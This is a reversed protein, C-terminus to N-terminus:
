RPKKFRFVFRDTKGRVAPDFVNKSHDDSPMRLVDSTGDLVFGGRLFDAKVTDPDIRHLKDVVARTDGAPGIHDIVAVIGGPKTARFLGAIVRDPDTRPIKFQESEWYFDHYNLHIMMFDYTNAKGLETAFDTTFTVNPERAGIADAAVKTKGQMFPAPVYAVVKGKPGVTRAMVETYYGNGAIVDLVTMGRKLGTFDLVEVPKRSADLAVADAPRGKFAVAAAVDKSPTAHVLTTTALLIALLITARM